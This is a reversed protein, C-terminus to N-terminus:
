VDMVNATVWWEFEIATIEVLVTSRAALRALVPPQGVDDGDVRITDSTFNVKVGIMTERFGHM